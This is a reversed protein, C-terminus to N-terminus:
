AGTHSVPERIRRIWCLRLPQYLGSEFLRLLAGQQDARQAAKIGKREDPAEKLMTKKKRGAIPVSIGSKLIM